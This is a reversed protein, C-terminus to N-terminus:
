LTLALLIVTAISGLGIGVTAWYWSSRRDFKGVAEAISRITALQDRDLARKPVFTAAGTGFDLLYATGTERVRKFMTWTSTSTARESAMRVGDMDIVVHQELALLDPRRGAMFTMIAAPLVGTLFSLVFLAFAIVTLDGMLLAFVTGPVFVFGFLATVMSHRSGAAGPEFLDRARLSYRVDVVPGAPAADVDPAAGTADEVVVRM